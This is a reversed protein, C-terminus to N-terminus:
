ALRSDLGARVAPWEAALVSFYASDRVSGDARMQEPTTPRRVPLWRWVQPDEAAALLDPVHDLTLPELTVGHGALVVPEPTRM